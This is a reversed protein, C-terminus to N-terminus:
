VSEPSSTKSAEALWSVVQSLDHPETCHPCQVQSLRNRLVLPYRENDIELDTFVSNGTVPCVFALTGMECVEGFV